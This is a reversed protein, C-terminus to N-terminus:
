SKDIIKIEEEALNYNFIITIWASSLHMITGKWDHLTKGDFLSVWQQAQTVHFFLLAIFAL